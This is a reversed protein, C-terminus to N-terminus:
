RPQQRARRRAERRPRQEHQRTHSRSHPPQNVQTHPITPTFRKPSPQRCTGTVVSLHVPHHHRCAEAAQLPRAQSLRNRCSWVAILVRNHGGVRLQGCLQLGPHAFADDSEEEGPTGAPQFHQWCERRDQRTTRNMYGKTNGGHVREGGSIMVLSESCRVLRTSDNGCVHGCM